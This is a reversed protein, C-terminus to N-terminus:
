CPYSSTAENTPEDYADEQIVNIVETHVQIVETM